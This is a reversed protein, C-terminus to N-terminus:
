AGKNAPLQAAAARAAVLRPDDDAIGYLHENVPIRGEAIGTLIATMLQERTMQRPDTASGLAQGGSTVDVKSGAYAGTRTKQLHIDEDRAEKLARMATENDPIKVDHISNEYIRRLGDLRFTVSRMAHRKIAREFYTRCEYFYKRYEEALNRGSVTGPDYAQVGQRTISVKFEAELADAIAQPGEHAALREIIFRKHKDELKNQAM